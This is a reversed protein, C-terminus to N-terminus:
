SFFLDRDLVGADRTITDLFQIRTASADEGGRVIVNCRLGGM